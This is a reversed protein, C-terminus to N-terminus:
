ENNLFTVLKHLDEFKGVKIKEKKIFDLAIKNDQFMTSLNKINKIKQAPFGEQQLYFEDSEGKFSAPITEIYGKAPVLPYYAINKKNLLKYKGSYKLFFYGLKSTDSIAHTLILMESGYRVFKIDKKIAWLINDDKLFEIEDRFIDYRLPFSAFNGNNLYVTGKIFDATYYPSGDVDAYNLKSYIERTALVRVQNILGGASNQSFLQIGLFPIFLFLIFFIKKMVISLM